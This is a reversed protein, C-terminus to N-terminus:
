LPINGHKKKPDSNRKNELARLAAILRARPEGFRGHSKRAATM